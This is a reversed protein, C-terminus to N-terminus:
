VISTTAGLSSSINEFSHGTLGLLALKRPSSSGSSSPVVSSNSMTFDWVGKRESRCVFRDGVCLSMYWINYQYISEGSSSCSTARFMYLISIFVYFLITRWTPWKGHIMVLHVTLLIHFIFIYIYIYIYVPRQTTQLVIDTNGYLALYSGSPGSLATSTM